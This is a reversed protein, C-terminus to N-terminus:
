HPSYSMRSFKLFYISKIMSLSLICRVIEIKVVSILYCLHCWRREQIYFLNHSRCIHREQHKCRHLLIYYFKSAFSVLCCIYNDRYMLKYFIRHDLRFNCRVQYNYICCYTDYCSFVLYICKDVKKHYLSHAHYMHPELHKCRRRPICVLRPHDIRRHM